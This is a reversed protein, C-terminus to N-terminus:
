NDTQNLTQLLDKISGNDRAFELLTQSSGSADALQRCAAVGSHDRPVMELLYKAVAYQSRLLAFCLPHVDTVPCRRHPDAGHAVLVRVISATDKAVASCVDPPGRLVRQLVTKGQADTSDAPAGHCILTHLLSASPTFTHLLSAAASLEAAQPLTTQGDALRDLQVAGSLPPSPGGGGAGRASGPLHLVEAAAPASPDPKALSSLASHGPGGGAHVSPLNRSGSPQGGSTKPQSSAAEVGDDSGSSTSSGRPQLCPPPPVGGGLRQHDQYIDGPVPRASAGCASQQQQPQVQGEPCDGELVRFMAKSLHEKVAAVYGCRSAVDVLRQQQQQQQQQQEGGRLGGGGVLM